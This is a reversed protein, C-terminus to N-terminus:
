KTLYSILNKRTAPWKETMRKIKESVKDIPPRKHPADDLCSSVLIGLEKDDSIVKEIHSKYQSAKSNLQKKPEPLQQTITHLMIMDYSFVDTFTNCIKLISTTSKDLDAAHIEPAEFCSAKTNKKFSKEPVIQAVGVDSIKAQLDPTLLINNSSLYCHVMTVMSPKQCHLFKLGLSVSLLLSLKTGIPIDKHDRLLISLNSDM